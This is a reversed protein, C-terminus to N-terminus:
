TCRSGASLRASPNSAGSIILSSNAKIYIWLLFVIGIIGLALFDTGQVWGIIREIYIQVQPPVGEQYKSIFDTFREGFGLIDAVSMSLALVPIISLLTIFALASAHLSCKDHSYGKGVIYGFKVINLLRVRAKSLAQTDLLWMDEALFKKLEEFGEINM